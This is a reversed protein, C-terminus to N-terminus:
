AGRRLRRQEAERLAQRREAATQDFLDHFMERHAETLARGRRAM